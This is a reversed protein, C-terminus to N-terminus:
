KCEQLNAVETPFTLAPNRPPHLPTPSSLLSSKEGCGRADRGRAMRVWISRKKGKKGGMKGGELGEQRERGCSACLWWRQSPRVLRPADKGAEGGEGGKIEGELEMKAGTGPARAHLPSRGQGEGGQPHMRASAPAPPPFFPPLWWKLCSVHLIASQRPRARAVRAAANRRCRHCPIPGARPAGAAM